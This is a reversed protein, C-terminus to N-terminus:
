YNDEGSGPLVIQYNYISINKKSAIEYISKLEPYYEPNQVKYGKLM